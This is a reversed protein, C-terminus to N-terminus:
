AGVGDVLAPRAALQPEALQHIKTILECVQVYPLNGLAELVLNTEPVSLNLTIQPQM